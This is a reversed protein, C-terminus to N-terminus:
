RMRLPPDHHHEQAPRRLATALRVADLAAAREADEAIEQLRTRLDERERDTLM